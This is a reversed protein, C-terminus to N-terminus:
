GQVLLEHLRPHDAYVGRMQDPLLAAIQCMIEDTDAKLAAERDEGKVPPFVMPKGIRITIDLRRLRRLEALVDPDHTGTVAVPVVPVGSKVALYSTGPRAEDLKGSLSRTGEPAVVVVWGQKLRNLAARLAAFDANFRDIWIADLAKVFWRFFVNSRYKEAVLMLIDKRNLLYYVLPADLRGIHNSAAIYAGQNPVNEKGIVRVRAILRILLMIILRALRYGM